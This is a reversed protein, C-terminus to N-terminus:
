REKKVMEKKKEEQMREEKKRQLLLKMQELQEKTEINAIIDEITPLDESKEIANYIVESAEKYQQIHNEVQKKEKKKLAEEIRKIRYLNYNQINICQFNIGASLLETVLLLKTAPIQLLVGGILLVILIGDKILSRTHVEKNWNLYKIIETPKNMDIHYNRNKEEIFEKRMALKSYKANQIIQRREEDTKAKKLLRKKQFDCYKDFYKLYNPFLKKIIRYKIKEVEFVVKQFKLAGLKECRKMKKKYMDKEM